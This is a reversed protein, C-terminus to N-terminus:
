ARRAVVLTDHVTFPGEADHATRALPDADVIAWEPGLHAFVDTATFMLDPLAPRPARSEIDSPHHGGLVLTGGPAVAAACREVFGGWDGSQPLHVFQASVLDFAGEPPAWTTADRM